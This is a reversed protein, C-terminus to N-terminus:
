WITVTHIPQAMLMLANRTPPATPTIGLGGDKPLGPGPPVDPVPTPVTACAGLVALLVALGFGLPLVLDGPFGGVTATPWEAETPLSKGLPFTQGEFTETDRWYSHSDIILYTLVLGAVFGCTVFLIIFATLRRMTSM